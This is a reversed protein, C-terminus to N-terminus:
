ARRRSPALAGIYVGAIVLVGGVFLGSTVPEDLLWASLAISVIPSLVAQFSVGTATWRQLLFLMLGFVGVSGPVVLYLLAAWTTPQSPIFMGEGFALSLGLLILTGTLMGVANMAALPVQPFSKVVVPALAFSAAAAVAALLHLAPIDRGAREGFIVAIGALAALAGLMRRLRFPEVRAVFAFLVTFLPVSALIVSALGAPVELLAWYILAFGLGFQLLGFLLTGLLARGRPLPTRRILVIVFFLASAGTFRLGAGWFPPLEQVSFKVAIVNNAILAVLAVFGAMTLTDPRASAVASGRETGSAPAAADIVRAHLDRSPGDQPVDSEHDM